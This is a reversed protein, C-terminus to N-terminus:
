DGLLVPLLISSFGHVRTRVCVCVFVSQLHPAHCRLIISGTQSECLGPFAERLFHASILLILLLQRPLLPVSFPDLCLRCGACLGQPQFSFPPIFVVQLAQSFM